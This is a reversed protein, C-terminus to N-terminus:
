DSLINLRCALFAGGLFVRPIWSFISIRCRQQLIARGELPGWYTNGRRHYSFLSFPPPQKCRLNSCTRNNRRGASRQLFGDDVVAKERDRCFFLDVGSSAAAVLAGSHVLFASRQLGACSAATRKTAAALKKRGATWQTFFAQRQLLRVATFVRDAPCTSPWSLLPM